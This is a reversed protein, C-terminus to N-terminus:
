GLSKRSSVPVKETHLLPSGKVAIVTFVQMYSSSLNSVYIKFIREALCFLAHESLIYTVMVNLLM